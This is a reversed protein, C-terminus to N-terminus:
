YVTSARIGMKGEKIKNKMKKPSIGLPPIAPNYPLLEIKLKQPIKISDGYCSCWNVNKGVTSM